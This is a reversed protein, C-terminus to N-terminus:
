NPIMGIGLVFLIQNFDERFKLPGVMMVVRIHTVKYDLLHFSFDNLSTKMQERVPFSLFHLHWFLFDESFMPKKGPSLTPM